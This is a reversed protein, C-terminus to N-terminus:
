GGLKGFVIKLIENTGSGTEEIMRKMERFKDEAWKRDKLISLNIEVNLAASQAAANALLASVGADSVANVNGAEAATKALPLTRLCLEIIELPAEAAKRTASEIERKRFEAETESEKLLKFADLLKQFAAADQDILEEFRRRLSEAERLTEEMLRSVEQYKKKGITLNCVMSVLAASMAGCMGAAGGGGPTPKASALEALFTGVSIEESM